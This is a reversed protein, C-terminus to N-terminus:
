NSAQSVKPISENLRENLADIGDKIHKLSLHAYRKTMNATKHGLLERLSQEDNTTMQYHSAFTHRLDHFRFDEIGAKRLAKKFAKKIEKIPEGEKVPSAFIYENNPTKPIQNLVEIVRDSLPVLRPEGNKTDEVDFCKIGEVTVIDEWKRTLLETKRLGTHIALEVIQMLVKIPKKTTRRRFRSPEYKCANLFTGLEDIKLYRKRQNNEKLFEVQHLPNESTLKWKIAMNFMRKLCALDRNITSPKIGHKKRDNKFKEVLWPTINNITKGKAYPTFNKINDSYGKFTKAKVNNKAFEKFREVLKEWTVYRSKSKMDFFKGEKLQTQRAALAERAETKSEGVAERYLVGQHRYRIYWTKGRKFLGRDKSMTPRRGPLGVAKEKKM